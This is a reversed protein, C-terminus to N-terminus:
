SPDVESVPNGATTTVAATWLPTVDDEAYVTLTGGVVAVRNRLRGIAQGVTRGASSGGAENRALLADANQNATPIDGVAAPSAPLNDTKTKILVVMRVESASSFGANDFFTNFNSGGMNTQAFGAIHTVDVEPVGAVTPTAAATGLWQTVNAPLLGTASAAFLADYIAEELVTFEHWVPLAGSEHVAIILTGVTNTDTTDLAKEYWGNEEHTAATSDNVQAWAGNNKKLRVDGQSITLATEATVGDTADLFPGLPVDVATSQRLYRM